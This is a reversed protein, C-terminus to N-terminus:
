LKTLKATNFNDSKDHPRLWVWKKVALEEKQWLM